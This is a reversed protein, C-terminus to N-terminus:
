ERVVGAMKLLRQTDPHLEDWRAAIEQPSAWIGEGVDSAPHLEGGALRAMYDIYVVHLSVEGNSSVIREFPLLQRTLEIDLSTEEKVERAIGQEITEGPQLGGGPCIWEGQWYGGRQPVHRVLLIRGADDEIVAGVAVMIDVM